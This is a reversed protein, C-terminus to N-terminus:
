HMMPLASTDFGLALRYITYNGAGFLQGINSNDQKAVAGTASNHATSYDPHSSSLQSQNDLSITFTSTAM